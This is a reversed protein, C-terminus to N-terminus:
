SSFLYHRSTFRLEVVVIVCVTILLFVVHAFLWAIVCMRSFAALIDHAKPMRLRACEFALLVPLRLNARMDTRMRLADSAHVRRPVSCSAHARADDRERM